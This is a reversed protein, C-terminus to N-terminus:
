ETMGDLWKKTIDVTSLGIDAICNSCLMVGEIEGSLLKEYAFDLQWKMLDDSIPKGNGYDWMYMGLIVRGDKTLSKAWELNEGMKVIQDSKWTWFTTLDFEKAKDRLDVNMDREYLVSWLEMPQGPIATHLTERQNAIREPTFVWPRYGCMFDDNVAAVLRKDRQAVELIEDMDDITGKKPWWGGSGLLSLCCKEMADGKILPDDQFKLKNDADLKMKMRCLNKIGFYELGEMPTMKNEGPLRYNRVEHHSGPTEGLLWIKDKFNKM